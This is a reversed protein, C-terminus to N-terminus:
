VNVKKRSVLTMMTMQFVTGNRAMEIVKERYADTTKKTEEKSVGKRLMAMKIVLPVSRAHWDAVLKRTSPKRHPVDTYDTVHPDEMPLSRLANEVDGTMHHSYKQEHHFAFMMEGEAKCSLGEAGGPYVSERGHFYTIDTWQLYGGPETNILM